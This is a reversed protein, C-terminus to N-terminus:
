NKSVVRLFTVTLPSLMPYRAIDSFALSILVAIFSLFFKVILVAKTKAITINIKM